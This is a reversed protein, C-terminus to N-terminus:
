RGPGAPQHAPRLPPALIVRPRAFYAPCEQGARRTSRAAFSVFHRLSGAQPVHRLRERTATTATRQCPLRAAKASRFAVNARWGGTDRWRCTFPQRLAFQPGRLPRADYGHPKLGRFIAALFHGDAACRRPRGATAAPTFPRRLGAPCPLGLRSDLLVRTCHPRPRWGTRGFSGLSLSRPARRRPQVTPPLASASAAATVHQATRQLAHNPAENMPLLGTAM